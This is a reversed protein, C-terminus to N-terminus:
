EIKFIKRVENTKDGFQTFWSGCVVVDANKEMFAIQREFREPLSVDDSDMIAIYKGKARDIAINRAVAPGSNKNLHIISIREDNFLTNKFLDEESCDDVIFFEFNEHTQNLISKVAEYLYDKPTNYVCMVVSVLISNTM